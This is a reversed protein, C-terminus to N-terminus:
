LFLKTLNHFCWRDLTIFRHFTVFHFSTLVGVEYFIFLKVFNDCTFVLLVHFQCVIIATFLQSIACVRLCKQKENQLCLTNSFKNNTKTKYVKQKPKYVVQRYVNQKILMVHKYDKTKYVYSTHLSKKKKYVKQKTNNVYRTQLSETQYQKTFMVKRYNKKIYVYRTQLSTNQLGLQDTCKKNQKQKTFM